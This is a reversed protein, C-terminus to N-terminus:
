EVKGGPVESFKQLVKPLFACILLIFIVDFSRMPDSGYVTGFTLVVAGTFVVLSALRMWSRKGLSDELFGISSDTFIGAFKKEAMKQLVKPYFGSILYVLIIQLPVGQHWIRSIALFLGVLISLACSIRCWSRNQNEDTFYQLILSM